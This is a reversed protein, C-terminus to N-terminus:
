TCSLPLILFPPCGRYFLPFMRLVSCGLWRHSQNEQFLRWRFTVWIHVSCSVFKCTSWSSSPFLDSVDNPPFRWNAPLIDREDRLIYNVQTRPDHIRLKLQNILNKLPIFLISMTTRANEMDLGINEFLTLVLSCISNYISM